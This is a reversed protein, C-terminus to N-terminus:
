PRRISGPGVARAGVPIKMFEGAYKTAGAPAAAVAAVCAALLVAIPKKRM